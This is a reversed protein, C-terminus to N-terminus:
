FLLNGTNFLIKRCKCCSYDIPKSPEKSDENQEDEAVEINENEVPDLKQEEEM